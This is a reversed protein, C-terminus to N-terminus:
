APVEVSLAESAGEASPSTYRLVLTWTGEGLREGDVALDGCVTTTADAFAPASVSVTRDDQTLDLTCTGGDEVVPSVYGGAQVSVTTEDWGAYSLVVDTATPRPPDTAIPEEEPARSTASAADGDTIGATGSSATGPQESVGQGAPDGSCGTVGLGLATFSALLVGARRPGAPLLCTM